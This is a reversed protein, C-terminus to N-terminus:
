LRESHTKPLDFDFKTQKKKFIKARM